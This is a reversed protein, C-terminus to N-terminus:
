GLYSLLYQITAFIYTLFTKKKVTELVKELILKSYKHVRYKERM